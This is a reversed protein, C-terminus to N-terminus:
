IDEKKFEERLLKEIIDPDMESPLYILGEPCSCEFGYEIRYRRWSHMSKPLSDVNMMMEETLSPQPRYKDHYFCSM